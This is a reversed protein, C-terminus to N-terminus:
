HGGIVAMAASWALFAVGTAYAWTLASRTLLERHRAAIALGRLRRWTATPFEPEGPATAAISRYFEEHAASTVGSARALLAVVRVAAGALPLLGILLLQGLPSRSASRLTSTEVILGMACTAVVWGAFATAHNSRQIMAFMEISNASAAEDDEPPFRAGDSGAERALLRVPVVRSSPTRRGLFTPMPLKKWGPASVKLSGRM